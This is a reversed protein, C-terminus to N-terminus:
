TRPFPIVDRINSIGTIYMLLRDFGLGYGSHPVTGYKRIDLYEKYNNVQMGSDVIKKLLIDYREERQSGGIVEGVRPFLIDMAAVTKGDDNLRMYFATTGVPYDTLVIPGGFVKETLFKEHETHLGLGWEVPYEFQEKYPTLLEIAKTYTIREFNNNLVKNLDGLLTPNVFRNFFEIEETAHELIYRVVYKVMAQAMEIADELDAFAMEPEVMWFEAAHTPTNSNEARFVPGFTYVNGFATAFSEADLQGSVTMKVTRKFFDKSYDVRGDEKKPIKEMDLTTVRFMEGAGECDSTTLIPTHVYVFDQEQFFRHIAYSMVSRVRYLASYTNTRPRLHTITRLFELSQRKKQIPYDSESNGIIEFTEAQVEFTQKGETRAVVKGVLRISSSISIKSAKNFNTVKKEEFVIQVNKFFTGDNLEIFCIGKSNRVTRVWGAVAIKKDLFKETQNFLQRVTTRDM